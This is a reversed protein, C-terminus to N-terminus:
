CTGRRAVNALVFAEADDAFEGAGDAAFHTALWEGPIKCFLWLWCCLGADFRAAALTGQAGAAKRAVRAAANLAAEWAWALGADVIHGYTTGSPRGANVGLGGGPPQGGM